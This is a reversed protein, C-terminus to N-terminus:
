NPGSTWIVVGLIEAEDGALPKYAISKGGDIPLAAYREALGAVAAARRVPVAGALKRNDTRLSVQIDGLVGRELVGVLVEMTEQDRADVFRRILVHEGVHLAPRHEVAHCILTTGPRYLRGASDDEVVAAFCQDAPVPLRRPAAERPYPRPLESPDGESEFGRITFRLPISAPAGSLLLNEPSVELAAALAELQHSNFPQKGTELKGIAHHTMGVRKGLEGQSLGRRLRWEQIRNPLDSRLEALPRGRKRMGALHAPAACGTM